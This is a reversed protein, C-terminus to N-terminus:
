TRLNASAIDNQNLTYHPIKKAEDLVKHFDVISQLYFTTILKKIKNQIQNLTTTDVNKLKYKGKETEEVFELICKLVNNINKVYHEQMTEYLKKLKSSTKDKLDILMVRKEGCAMWNLVPNNKSVKIHYKSEDYETAVNKRMATTFRSAIEKNCKTKRQLIDKYDNGTLLDDGCNMYEAIKDKNKRGFLMKMHHIMTEREMPKLFNDCFHSFGDLEKFNIFDNDDFHQSMLCYTIQMVQKKDVQINRITMGALSNEGLHELDYVHRILLLLNIIKKYHSSIVKCLDNKTLLKNNPAVYNNNPIFLVNDKLDQLELKLHKKLQSELVVTYKDCDMEIKDHKNLIESVIENLKTFEEKFAVNGM